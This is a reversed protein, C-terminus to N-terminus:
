FFVQGVSQIPVRCVPCSRTVNLLQQACAECACVHMCPVMAYLKLGDM